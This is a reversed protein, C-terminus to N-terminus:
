TQVASHAADYRARSVLAPQELELSHSRNLASACDICEIDRRIGEIIDMEGVAM